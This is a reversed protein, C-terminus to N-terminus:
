YISTDGVSGCVKTMLAIRSKVDLRLCTFRV